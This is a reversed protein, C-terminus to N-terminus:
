AANGTVVVFGDEREIRLRGLGRPPPGHLVRGDAVAYAGAHCPCVLRDAGARYSVACSEHTCTRAYAVFDDPGSRILICPHEPGPYEFLRFGGVALDDARCIARRPAACRAAELALWGTAAGGSLATMRRLFARRGLGDNM